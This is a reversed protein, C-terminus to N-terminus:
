KPLVAYLVTENSSNSHHRVYLKYEPVLKKVYLPIRTMDEMRHYICVALTPKDRQILQRAGMLSEFESGEIDMKIMTVKDAPDIVEDIPVVPIGINGDECFRSGAGGGGNFHLIMRESWTGFPLLEVIESLNEEDKRAKCIQYNQPDPEFAYIKKVCGSYKIFQLSTSLDFCGADIFTENEGFEIFDPNFYQGEETLIPINPIEYIQNAPYNGERLIQIIERKAKGNDVSIVVSLDKRSLLEEPSIVPYGLYGNEQKSKTRSCFGILRTDERFFHLINPAFEGAGYLVVDRDFPLAAKISEVATEFAKARDPLGPLYASVINQIYKHDGSILWNLRNLYIDRSEKDELINYIYRYNVLDM